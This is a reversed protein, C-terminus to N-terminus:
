VLRGKGKRFTLTPPQHTPTKADKRRLLAAGCAVSFVAMSFVFLASLVPPLSTLLHNLLVVVLIVGLIGLALMGVITLADSQSPNVPRSIQRSAQNMTKRVEHHRFDVTMEIQSAYPLFKGGALPRLPLQTVIEALITVENV